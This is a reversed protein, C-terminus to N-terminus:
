RSAVVRAATGKTLGAAKLEAEAANFQAAFKPNELMLIALEAGLV